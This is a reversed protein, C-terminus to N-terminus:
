ILEQIRAEMERARPVLAKRGVGSEEAVADALDKVIAAWTVGAIAQEVLAKDMADTPITDAAAVTDSCGIAAGDGSWKNGLHGRLGSICGHGGGVVSWSHGGNGVSSYHHARVIEGMGGLNNTGVADGM